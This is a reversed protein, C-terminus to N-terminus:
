CVSTGKAEWTWASRWPHRALSYSLTLCRSLAGRPLWSNPMATATSTAAPLPRGVWEAGSNWSAPMYGPATYPDDVRLQGAATIVIIEDDPSRATSAPAGAQSPPAARTAAAIRLPGSTVASSAGTQVLVLGTVMVLTLVIIITSILRAM